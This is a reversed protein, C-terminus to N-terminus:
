GGDSDEIIEKLEEACELCLNYGHSLCGCRMCHQYKGISENM